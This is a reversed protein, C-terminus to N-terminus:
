QIREAGQGLRGRMQWRRVAQRLIEPSQHELWEVLAAAGDERRCTAAYGMSGGEGYGFAFIIVGTNTGDAVPGLKEIAGAAFAEEKTRPQRTSM